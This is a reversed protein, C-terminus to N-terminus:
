GADREVLTGEIVTGAERERRERISNEIREVVSANRSRTRIAHTEGSGPQAAERLRSRVTAIAYAFPEGKGAEIAERVADGYMAPTGGEALGALLKPHSPNVRIAGAQRMAICALDAPTAAPPDTPAEALDGASALNVSRAEAEARAKLIGTGTGTEQSGLPVGPPIGDANGAPHKKSGSPIGPPKKKTLTRSQPNLALLMRRADRIQEEIESPDFEIGWRKANGAGSSLRSSLKELWAELAKACVVPHYLRGDDCKRWGRLAMDKVRKWRPGAGSHAALLRDDDPLSGAPVQAWSKGWLTIAAVKEADNSLTWTDSAFLRGFEMPMFPFDRLDVCSPVLPTM